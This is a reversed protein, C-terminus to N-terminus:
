KQKLKEIWEFTFISISYIGYASGIVFFFTIPVYFYPSLRLFALIIGTVISCVFPLPLVIFCRQLLIPLSGIYVLITLISWSACTKIITNIFNQDNNNNINNRRNSYKESTTVSTQLLQNNAYNHPLPDIYSLIFKSEPLKPYKAALFVSPFLYSSASFELTKIELLQNSDSIENHLSSVYKLLAANMIAQAARVRSLVQSPIVFSIMVAEYTM